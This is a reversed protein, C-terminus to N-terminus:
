NGVCADYAGIESKCGAFEVGDQICTLDSAKQTM